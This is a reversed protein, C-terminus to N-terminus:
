RDQGDRGRRHVRGSPGHAPFPEAHADPVTHGIHIEAGTPDIGFKAIFPRRQESAEEVRKVLAEPSPQLQECREAVLAAQEAPSLDSLDMRRRAYTLELLQRVVEIASLDAEVLM